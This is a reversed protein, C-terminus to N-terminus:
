GVCDDENYDSPLKGCVCREFNHDPGYTLYIEEVNGVLVSKLFGTEFLKDIARVTTRRNNILENKLVFQILDKKSPFVDHGEHVRLLLDFYLGLAKGKLHAMITAPIIINHKLVEEDYTTSMLKGKQTEARWCILYYILM